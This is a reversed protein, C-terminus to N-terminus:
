LPLPLTDSQETISAIAYKDEVYEALNDIPPTAPNKTFKQNFLQLIDTDSLAYNHYTLNAMNLCDGKGEFPNKEEDASSYAYINGPNVYLPARNHKMVASGNVGNYPSEVIRDLINIANIYIKCSTKNKYLIDNEPTIERLVITLMFWKRNYIYDNMNYIGLLGKNKDYWSASACNIVNNGNERYADPGTITNYEVIIATGDKKMRILPNKVLVTSGKNFVECNTNSLYPVKIKSGRLLLVVDDTTNISNLQEKDVWIWFNYSYEAGGNQNISPTLDKFSMSAKNYTNYGWSSSISLNIWGDFIIVDKKVTNANKLNMISEYNYIYYAILLLIALLVLCLVIQIIISLIM